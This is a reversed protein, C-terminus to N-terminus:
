FIRQNERLSKFKLNGKMNKYTVILMGTIFCVFSFAYGSIRCEVYSVISLGLLIIIGICSIIAFARCSRLWDLSSNHNLVLCYALEM